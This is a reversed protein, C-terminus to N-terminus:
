VRTELMIHLLESFLRFLGPACQSLLAFISLGKSGAYYINDHGTRLGLSIVTALLDNSPALCLDGRRLEGSPICRDAM